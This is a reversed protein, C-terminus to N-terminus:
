SFGHEGTWSFVIGFIGAHISPILIKKNYLNMLSLATHGWASGEDIDGLASVLAIAFAVAAHVSDECQGHNMSMEMMQCSVFASHIPKTQHYYGILSAMIKMARVKNCDVLLNTSLFNKQREGSFQEKQKMLEDRVRDSNLNSLDLPEGLRELANLSEEIARSLDTM